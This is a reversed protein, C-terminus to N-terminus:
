KTTIFIWSKWLSSAQFLHKQSQLFNTSLFIESFLNSFYISPRMSIDELLLKLEKEIDLAVMIENLTSSCRKIKNEWKMKMKESKNWFWGANEEFTMKKSTRFERSIEFESLPIVWEV